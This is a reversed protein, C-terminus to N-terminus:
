RAAASGAALAAQLAEPPLAIFTLIAVQHERLWRLTREAAALRLEDYEGATRGRGERVSRGATLEEQRRRAYAVAEVQQDLSIRRESTM